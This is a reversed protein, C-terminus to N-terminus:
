KMGMFGKLTDIDFINPADSYSKVYPMYDRCCKLLIMANAKCNLPKGRSFMSCDVNCCLKPETQEM